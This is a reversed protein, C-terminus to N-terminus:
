KWNVGCFCVVRPDPSCGQNRLDYGDDLLFSLENCGKGFNTFYRGDKAAKKIEAYYSDYKHNAKDSMKVAEKATLAYANINMYMFLLSIKIPISM